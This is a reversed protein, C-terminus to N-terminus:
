RWRASAPAAGTRVVIRRLGEANAWDLGARRAVQQVAGADLVVTLGSRRAVPVDSATGAGDFLDGLTVLGDADATERKLTVPQGATAATAFSAFLLAPLILRKMMAM